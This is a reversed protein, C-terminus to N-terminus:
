SSNLIYASKEAMERINADESELYAKLYQNVGHDKLLGPYTGALRALGHLLDRQLAPNELYNKEPDMYSIFIPLYERALGEHCAMIEALAEPAGWGSSGSEDNLMWMLRRMVDRAKEVDKEALRAGLLGM